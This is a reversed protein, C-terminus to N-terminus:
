ITAALRENTTAVRGTKLTPSAGAIVEIEILWDPNALSSIVVSTAAPLADDAFRRQSALSSTDIGDRVFSTVKVVNRLDADQSRLVVHLNKYIQEVQAAVDGRGVIAGDSTVGVLGSIFLLTAGGLDVCVVQSYRGVPPADAPNHRSIVVILTACENRAGSTSDPGRLAAATQPSSQYLLVGSGLCLTGCASGM